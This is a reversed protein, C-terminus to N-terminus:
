TGIEDRRLSWVLAHAVHWVNAERAGLNVVRLCAADGNVVTAGVGDCTEGKAINWLNHLPCLLVAYDLIKSAHVCRSDNAIREYFVFNNM